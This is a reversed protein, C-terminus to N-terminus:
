YPLTNSKVFLIGIFDLIIKIGAAIPLGVLITLIVTAVCYIIYGAIVTIGTALFELISKIM